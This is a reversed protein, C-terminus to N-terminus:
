YSTLATSFVLYPGNLKCYAVNKAQETSRNRLKVQKINYCYVYLTQMLWMNTSEMFYELSHSM